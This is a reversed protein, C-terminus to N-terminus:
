SVAFFGVLCALSALALAGALWLNRREALTMGESTGRQIPENARGRWALYREANLDRSERQRYSTWAPWGLLYAGAGALVAGILLIWPM